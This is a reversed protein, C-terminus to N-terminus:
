VGFEKPIAPPQLGLVGWSTHFLPYILDQANGQLLFAEQHTFVHLKQTRNNEIKWAWHDEASM